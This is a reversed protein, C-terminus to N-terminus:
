MEKKSLYDREIKQCVLEPFIMRINVENKIMEKKTVFNTIEFYKKNIAAIRIAGLEINETNSYIEVWLYYKPYSIGTQTPGDRLFYHKTIILASFLKQFYQDIDRQLFNDFDVKDPVNADIHSKAIDLLEDSYILGLINSIGLCMIIVFIKKYM